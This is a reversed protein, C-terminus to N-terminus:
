SIRYRDYELQRGNFQPTKCFSFQVPGDFVFKRRKMKYRRAELFSDNEYVVFEENVAWFQSYQHRRLDDIIQSVLTAGIRRDRTWFIEVPETDLGGSEYDLGYIVFTHRISSRVFFHDRSLGITKENLIKPYRKSFTSLISEQMFQSLFM